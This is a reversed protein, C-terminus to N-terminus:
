KKQGTLHAAHEGLLERALAKTMTDTQFTSGDVKKLKITGAAVEQSLYREKVTFHKQKSSWRQATGPNNLVTAANDVQLTTPKSLDILNLESLLARHYVIEKAAESAFHTESQLTSLCITSSQSSVFHTVAQGAIGGTYGGQSKSTATDDALSADSGFVFVPHEGETYSKTKYYCLGVGLQFKCYMLSQKAGKFAKISPAHMGRGLTSVAFKLMPCVMGAFWAIAAVISKYIKTVTNYDDAAHIPFLKKFELVVAERDEDTQPCDEKTLVYGTPLPQSKPSASSMGHAALLKLIYADMTLHVYPTPTAGYEFQVGLCDQPEVEGLPKDGGTIEYNDSFWKMLIAALRRSATMVRINDSYTWVILRQGHWESDVDFVAYFIAPQSLCQKFKIPCRTRHQNNSLLASYLDQQFAWGSVPHGYVARTLLLGLEEGDSNFRKSGAPMCALVPKGNPQPPMMAAIYAQILDIEFTLLDLELAIATLMRLDSPPATGIWSEIYDVGRDLGWGSLVLRAKFRALVTGQWKRTLVWKMMLRRSGVSSNTLGSWKVSPRNLHGNFEDLAACLWYLAEDSMLADYLSEPDPPSSHKSYLPKPPCKPKPIEGTLLGDLLQGDDNFYMAVTPHPKFDKKALLATVVLEGDHVEFEYSEGKWAGDTSSTSQAYEVIPTESLMPGELDDQVDTTTDIPPPPPQLSDGSNVSVENSVESKLEGKMPAPQVPVQSTSPKTAPAVPQQHFAPGLMCTSPDFSVDVTNRITGDSELTIYRDSRDQGLYLAQASRHAMQKTGTRQAPALRVNCLAGFPCPLARRFQQLSVDGYVEAIRPRGHSTSTPSWHIATAAHRMGYDWYLSPDLRFHDFNGKCMIMSNRYVRQLLQNIQETVRTKASNKKYPSAMKIDVGRDWCFDKFSGLYETGQDVWVVVPQRVAIRDDFKLGSDMVFQKFGRISSASSHDSSFTVYPLRDSEVTWVQCYRNGAKSLPFACGLTDALVQHSDDVVVPAVPKLQKSSQNAVRIQRDLEPNRTNTLRVDYYAATSQTKRHGLAGLTARFMTYDAKPAWSSATPPDIPPPPASDTPPETTLTTAPLATPTHDHHYWCVMNSGMYSALDSRFAVIPMSWLNGRRLTAIPLLDSGLSPPLTLTLPNGRQSADVVTSIGAAALRDTAVVNHASETILLANVDRYLVSVHTSYELQMIRDGKGTVKVAGAVGGLRLGSTDDTVSVFQKVDRGISYDAGSDIYVDNTADLDSSAPLAIGLPPFNEFNERPEDVDSDSSSDDSDFSVLGPLDDDGDSDGDSSEESDSSVLGPPEDDEDSDDDDTQDRKCKSGIARGADAVAGRRVKPPPADQPSHAYPSPDSSAEVGLAEARAESGEEIVSPLIKSYTGDDNKRFIDEGQKPEATAYKAILAKESMSRRDSPSAQPCHRAWHKTSGCIRCPSEASPGKSGGRDRRNGRRDGRQGGRCDKTEHSFNWGHMDCWMMGPKPPGSARDLNRAKRTVEAVTKASLVTAPPKGTSQHKADYRMADRTANARLVHFKDFKRYRPEDFVDQPMKARFIAALYPQRLSYDPDNLQLARRRLDVLSAMAAKVQSQMDGAGAPWDWNAADEILNPGALEELDGGAAYAQIAAWLKDVDFGIRPDVFGAAAMEAATFEYDDDHHIAPWDEDPIAEKIAEFAKSRHDRIKAPAGAGAPASQEVEADFLVYGYGKKVMYGKLRGSWSNFEHKPLGTSWQPVRVKEDQSSDM